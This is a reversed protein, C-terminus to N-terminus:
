LPASGTTMLARLQELSAVRHCQIHRRKRLTDPLRWLGELVGWAAAGPHPAHRVAGAWARLVQPWIPRMLPWPMNKLYVTLGNRYILRVQAPSDRVASAGREHDVVAGPVYLCRYGRLRARFGLDVDDSYMFLSDDLGGVEEIVERRYICAAGSASFVERPQDFPPGDLQDHGLMVGGFRPDFGDGASDIRGSGDALLLRSAAFGFEPQAELADVLAELWTPQPYADNNLFAIYSGTAVHLGANWAGATGRNQPLSVLHVSSFQRRVFQVTGDTSHNDVVITQDVPHAQANLAELCRALRDRANWTPVIVSVTDM